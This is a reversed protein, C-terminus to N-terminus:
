PLRIGRDELCLRMAHNWRWALATEPDPAIADSLARGALAVAAGGDMAAPMAWLAATGAPDTGLRRATEVTCPEWATLPVHAPRDMRTAAACGVMVGLVLLGLVPRTNM